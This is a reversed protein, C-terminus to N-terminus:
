PTCREHSTRTDSTDETSAQLTPCTRLSNLLKNSSWRDFIWSCLAQGLGQFRTLHKANQKSKPKFTQHEQREKSGPPKPSPTAESTKERMSQIEKQRYKNCQVAKPDQPHEPHTGAPLQKQVKITPHLTRNYKALNDLICHRPCTMMQTQTIIRLLDAVFM